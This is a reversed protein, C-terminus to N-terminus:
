HSEEEEEEEKNGTLREDKLFLRVGAPRSTEQTVVSEGWVSVERRKERREETEEKM